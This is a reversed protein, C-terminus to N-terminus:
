FNYNQRDSKINNKTQKSSSIDRFINWAAIFRKNTQENGCDDCYM